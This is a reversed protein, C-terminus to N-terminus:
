EVQINFKMCKTTLLIEHWRKNLKRFFRYYIKYLLDPLAVCIHSLTNGCTWGSRDGTIHLSTYKINNSITVNFICKYWLHMSFLYEGCCNLVLDVLRNFM